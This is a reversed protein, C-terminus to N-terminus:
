HTRIIVTNWDAIWEVPKVGDPLKSADILNEAVFRLPIYTHNGKLVPVADIATEVGDVFAASSGIQLLIRKEDKKISIQRTEGNWEVDAGLREVVARLPIMTTGSEDLFPKAEEDFQVMERNVVVHITGPNSAAQLATIVEVPIQLSDFDSTFSTNIYNHRKLPIPDQVGEEFVNNLLRKEEEPMISDSRGDSEGQYFAAVSYVHWSPRRFQAFLDYITSGTLSGMSEMFCESKTHHEGPGWTQDFIYLPLEIEQYTRIGEKKALWFSIGDNPKFKPDDVTYISKTLEYKLRIADYNSNKSYPYTKWSVSYFRNLDTRYIDIRRFHDLNAEEGTIPLKSHYVRTDYVITKDDFQLVRFDGLYETKGDKDIFHGSGLLGEDFEPYRQKVNSYVISSSGTFTRGGYQYAYDKGWALYGKSTKIEIEKQEDNEVFREGNEIKLQDITKLLEGAKWNYWDLRTQAASASFAFHQLSLTFVLFIALTIKRVSMNCEGGIIEEYNFL